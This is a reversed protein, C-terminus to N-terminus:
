RNTFFANTISGGIYVRYKAKSQGGDEENYEQRLGPIVHGGLKELYLTKSNSGDEATTFIFHTLGQSKAWMLREYVLQTAIGRRRYGSLVALESMYVANELPFGLMHRHELLFDHSFEAIGGALTSAGGFGIPTDGDLALFLCGNGVLPEWARDIVEQDSWTEEWPPESFITQYLHIFNARRPDDIGHVQDYTIGNHIRMTAGKPHKHQQCKGFSGYSESKTQIVKM